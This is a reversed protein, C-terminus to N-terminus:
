SSTISAEFDLWLIVGYFWDEIDLTIINEFKQCENLRKIETETPKSGEEAWPSYYTAEINNKEVIMKIDYQIRNWIM